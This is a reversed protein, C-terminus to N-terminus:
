FIFILWKSSCMYLAAIKSLDASSALSLTLAKSQKAEAPWPAAALVWDPAKICIIQGFFPTRPSTQLTAEWLGRRDEIFPKRPHSTPRPPVWQTKFNAATEGICRRSSFSFCYFSSVRQHLDLVRIGTESHPWSPTRSCGTILSRRNIRIMLMPYAKM